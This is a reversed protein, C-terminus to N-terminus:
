NELKQESSITVVISHIKEPNQGPRSYYIPVLYKMGTPNLAKLTLIAKGAGGILKPDEPSYESKILEIKRNKQPLTTLIGWTYGTSPNAPLTVKFTDGVKVSFEKKEPLGFTEAQRVKGYSASFLLLTIAFFTNKVNM